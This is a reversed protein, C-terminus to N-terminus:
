ILVLIKSFLATMMAVVIRVASEKSHTPGEYNNPNGSEITSIPIPIARTPIKLGAPM